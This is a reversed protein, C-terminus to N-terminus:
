LGVWMQSHQAAITFGALNGGTLRDLVGLMGGDVYPVRATVTVVPIGGSIAPSIIDSPPVVCTSTVTVTGTDNWSPLLLPANASLRGRLAVTQTDSVIQGWEPQNTIPCIAIATTRRAAFRAADRVSKTIVHQQHLANGFEAVGFSMLLLFPMLLTMEVVAAGEQRRRRRQARRGRERRARNKGIVHKM